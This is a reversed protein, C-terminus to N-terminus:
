QSQEDLVILDMERSLIINYNDIEAGVTDRGLYLFRICEAEDTSISPAEFDVKKKGKVKKTKLNTLKSM